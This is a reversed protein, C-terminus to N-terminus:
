PALPSEMAGLEFGDIHAQAALALVYELLARRYLSERLYAAILPQAEDFRYPRGGERAELYVVHYGFRSEIPTPAIEGPTLRELARELEPVFKGPYLRGMRGGAERSPCDSYRRAFDAFRSVDGDLQAILDRAKAATDARIVAEEPAMLLIHSVSHVCPSRLANKEFYRRCSAEDPEATTVADDLLARIRAEDETEDGEPQPEIGVRAAEQLLLERVVLARRAAQRAAEASAAPHYQMERHVAAEDIATGNITIQM